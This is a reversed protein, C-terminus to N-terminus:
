LPYTNLKIRIENTITTDINLSDSLVAEVRPILLSNIEDKIRNLNRRQLLFNEKQSTNLKSPQLKSISDIQFNVTTLRKDLFFIKEFCDIKLKKASNINEGAVNRTCGNLSLFYYTLAIIVIVAIIFFYSKTNTGKGGHTKSKFRIGDPGLGMDFEHLEEATPINLVEGEIDKQQSIDKIIKFLKQKIESQQYQSAHNTSDDQSRVLDLFDNQIEETYKFNYVDNKKKFYALLESLVKPIKNEELDNKVREIFVLFSM